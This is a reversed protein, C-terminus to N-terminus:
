PTYKSQLAESLSIIGTSTLGEGAFDLDGSYAVLQDDSIARPWYTFRRIHGNMTNGGLSVQGGLELTTLASSMGSTTDSASLAGDIAYSFDTGTHSSGFQVQIPYTLGSAFNHVYSAGTGALDQHGLQLKGYSMRGYVREGSSAGRFEFFRPFNGGSSWTTATADIVVSMNAADFGFDATALTIVDAPRTAAGSTTPIISTPAGEGEEIQAGWQLLTDTTAVIQDVRPLQAAVTSSTTCTHSLWVRYWGNGADIIGYDEPDNGSSQFAATGDTELQWRASVNGNGNNFASSSILIQVRGDFTSGTPVKVYTSFTYSTGATYSLHEGGHWASTGSDPTILSAGTGGTPDTDAGTTVTAPNNIHTYGSGGTPNMQSNTLLNTRSEEVLLGLPNGSADFEVRPTNVAATQILGNSGMFTATTSRTCSIIDTALQDGNAKAADEATTARTFSSAQGDFNLDLSPVSAKTGLVSRGRIGGWNFPTLERDGNDEPGAEDLSLIGVNATTRDISVANNASHFEVRGFNTSHRDDSIILDGVDSIAAWQGFNFTSTSTADAAIRYTEDADAWGTAPRAWVLLEYSGTDYATVHKGDKSMGNLNIANSASNSLTAVQSTMGVSPWGAGKEHVIITNATAVEAAITLGDNSVAVREGHGNGSGTGDLISVHHASTTSFLSPATWGGGGAELIEVRGETTRGKHRVVLTQGDESLSLAHKEDCGFKGNTTQSTSILMLPTNATAAWSGDKEWLYVSGLNSTAYARNSTGLRNGAAITNGDGSITIADGLYNVSNHSNDAVIFTQTHSATGDAWGAGKEYVYVNGCNIGTTTSSNKKSQNDSVIIVTGDDSIDNDYGFAVESASEPSTLAAVQSWTGGSKEFVLVHGAGGNDFISSAVATNGDKSISVNSYGVYDGAGGNAGLQVTTNGFDYTDLQTTDTFAATTAQTLESTPLWGKTGNHKYTWIRDNAYQIARTDSASFTYSSNFTATTIDYATTCDYMHLTDDSHGMIVLKNGGDYWAISRLWQGTQSSHSLSTATGRSSDTIDYATSLDAQYLTGSAASDNWYVRTGDDNFNISTMSVSLSLSSHTSTHLDYATTMTWYDPSASNPSWMKLGDHSMVLNGQGYSMGTSVDTATNNVYSSTDWPTPLPYNYIPDGALTYDGITISTGDPAWWFTMGIVFGAPLDQQTGETLATFDSVASQTTAVRVPNAGLLGGLFRQKSM